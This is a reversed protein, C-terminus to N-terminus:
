WKIGQASWRIEQASLKFLQESAMGPHMQSPRVPRFQCSKRGDPGRQVHLTVRKKKIM